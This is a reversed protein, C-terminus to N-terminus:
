HEKVEFRLFYCIDMVQYQLETQQRRNSTLSNSLNSFYFMNQEDSHLSLEYNYLQKNNTNRTGIIHVVLASCSFSNSVKQLQVFNPITQHSGCNNYFFLAFWFLIHLAISRFLHLVFYSIYIIFFSCSLQDTFYHLRTESDSNSDTFM